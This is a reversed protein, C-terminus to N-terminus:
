SPHYLQHKLHFRKSFCGLLNLMTLISPGTQLFVEFNRVNDVGWGHRRSVYSIGGSLQILLPVYEYECDISRGGLLLGGVGVETSRGGIVTLNWRELYTYVDKWRNGPGVRLTKEDDSLELTNFMKLDITIGDPASSAGAFMSHGGSKAAFRCDHKGITQLIFSVDEPSHPVALCLPRVLRQRASYYALQSPTFPQYFM